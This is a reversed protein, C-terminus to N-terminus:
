LSVGLEEIMERIDKLEEKDLYIDQMTAGKLRL